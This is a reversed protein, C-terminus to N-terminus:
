GTPNSGQEDQLTAGRNMRYPQEGAAPNSERIDRSEPPIM